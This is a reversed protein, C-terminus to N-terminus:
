LPSLVVRGDIQGAKMEDIVDNIEKLPRTHIRPKVKGKAAIDLCEQLDLRHM